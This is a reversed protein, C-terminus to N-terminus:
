WTERNSSPVTESNRSKRLPPDARSTTAMSITELIPDGANHMVIHNHLVTSVIVIDRQTTLSYGHPMRLISFRNKVVGFVREITTRLSSHRLNFLEWSHVPPCEEFERLHYHVGKHPTLFGPANGFGADVLYFKGDSVALRDGRNLASFLVTVDAASGEWGALVYHFLMDFGCAM